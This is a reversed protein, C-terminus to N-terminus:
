PRDGIEAAYTLVGVAEFPMPVGLPGMPSKARNDVVVYYGGPGLAFTQTSEGPGLQGFGIPQGPPPGIPRAAEYDRRWADGMQRDVITFELPAGEVKAKFFLAAGSSEITFPGLFERAGARVETLDTALLEHDEGTQFHRTPTAPPQLIGLTFNDGDDRRVVTFGRALESEVVGRGILTAVDGVPTKTALSVIPNEVGLLRIDPPALVRNYRGWVYVADEEMRFDPRFEVSAGCYFGVRRAVPLMAYGTGTVNMVVTHKADDVQVACQTPFYRGISRPGIWGLKLPVGRKLMEPCIRSAGFNSFLWWRVSENANITNRVCPCGAGMFALVIVLLVFAAGPARPRSFRFGGAFSRM